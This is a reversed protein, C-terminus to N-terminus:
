DGFLNNFAEKMKESHIKMIKKMKDVNKDCEKKSIEGRELKKLTKSIKKDLSRTIKSHKTCTTYYDIKNQEVIYEKLSM